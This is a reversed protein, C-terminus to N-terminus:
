QGACLECTWVYSSTISGSTLPAKARFFDLFRRLEKRPCYMGLCFGSDESRAFCTRRFCNRQLVTDCKRTLCTCFMLAPVFEILTKWKVGLRISSEGLGASLGFTM